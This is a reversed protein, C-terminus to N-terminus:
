NTTNQKDQKIQNDLQMFREGFILSWTEICQLRLAPDDAYLDAISDRVLASKEWLTPYHQQVLALYTSCTDAAYQLKSIEQNVHYNITELMEQERLKNSVHQLSFISCVIVCIASIIYPISKWWIQRRRFAQKLAAINAYKSQQCARAIHCYRNPFLLTLINAFLQIDTTSNNNDSTSDTNSLGFDILKVNQGNRTILINSSKLDHHVLQLSHIYELADLLQMMVRQRAAKSPNTTLWEALTTGDVYEMVICRGYGEINELSYTEAIHPHSLSVGFAFEKEQLLLHDTLSQSDASLGKLVFYKGYRKAHYLMNHNRQQFLAIDSWNTSITHPAIFGSDSIDM